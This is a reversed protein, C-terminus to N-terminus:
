QCYSRRSGQDCIFQTLRATLKTIATDGRAIREDRRIDQISDIAMRLDYTDVLKIREQKIRLMELDYEKHTVADNLRVSAVGWSVSAGGVMVILSAIAVFLRITKETILLSGDDTRQTGMFKNM